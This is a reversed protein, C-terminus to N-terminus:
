YLLFCISEQAITERRSLLVGISVHDGTKRQVTQNLSHAPGPPDNTPRFTLIDSIPSCLLDKKYGHVFRHHNPQPFALHMLSLGSINHCSLPRKGKEM